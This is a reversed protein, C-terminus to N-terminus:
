LITNYGQGFACPLFFFPDLQEGRGDSHSDARKRSAAIKQIM